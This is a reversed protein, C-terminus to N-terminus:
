CAAVKIATERSLPSSNAAAKALSFELLLMPVARKQGEEVLMAVGEPRRVHKRANAGVLPVHASRLVRQAPTRRIPLLAPHLRSRSRAVDALSRRTPNRAERALAEAPNALDRQRLNRTGQVPHRQLRLLVFIRHFPQLPRALFHSRRRRERIERRGRLCQVRLVSIECPGCRLACLASVSAVHSRVRAADESIIRLLRDPHWFSYPQTTKM